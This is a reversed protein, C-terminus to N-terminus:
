VLVNSLFIIGGTVSPKRKWAPEPAARLGCPERGKARRKGCLLVTPLEGPQSFVASADGLGGPMSQGLRPAPWPGVGQAGPVMPEPVWSGSIHKIGRKGWGYGRESSGHRWFSTLRSCLARAPLCLGTLDAGATPPRSGCFRGRVLGIVADHVRSKSGFDGFGSLTALESNLNWGWQHFALWLGQSPPWSNPADRVDSLNGTQAGTRAREPPWRDRARERERRRERFTLM